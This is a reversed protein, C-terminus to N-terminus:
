SSSPVIPWQSRSQPSRHDAIASCEHTRNHHLHSDWAHRKDYSPSIWLHFGHYRIPSSSTASNESTGPCWSLKHRTPVTRTRPHLYSTRLLVWTIFKLSLSQTSSPRKIEVTAADMMSSSADTVITRRFDSRITRDPSTPPSPSPSVPASTLEASPGSDVSLPSKENCSSM